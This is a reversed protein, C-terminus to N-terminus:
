GPDVRCDGDDEFTNQSAPHIRPDLGRMFALNLMDFFPAGSKSKACTGAAKCGGASLGCKVLLRRLSPGRRQSISRRFKPEWAISSCFLVLTSDNQVRPSHSVSNTRTVIEGGM